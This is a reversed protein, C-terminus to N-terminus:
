FYHHNFMLLFQTSQCDLM